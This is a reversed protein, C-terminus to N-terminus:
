GLNQCGNRMQNQSALPNLNNKLKKWKIMHFIKLSIKRILSFFPFGIFFGSIAAALLTEQGPVKHEEPKDSVDNELSEKKLDEKCNAADSWDDLLVNDLPPETDDHATEKQIAPAKVAEVHLSKTIEEKQLIQQLCLVM